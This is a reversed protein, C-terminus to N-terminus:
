KVDKRTGPQLPEGQAFQAAAATILGDDAMRALVWNRRIKARDRNESADLRYANPAKPLAALYAAEAVSLDALDKGFYQEAAAGIGWAAGGLYIQNLYIELIRDKSLAGEIRHALIVEKVKRGLSPSQGALFVNKALQQTITAAGEPSKADGGAGSVAVRQLGHAAARLIASLSYGPHGYYNEDEAALFAKVVHPPIESLPAYKRYELLQGDAGHRAVNPPTYAALAEVSPLDRAYSWYVGGVSLGLFVAVVAAAMGGRAMGRKGDKSVAYPASLLELPLSWERSLRAAMEGSLRRRRNLVESARSRSGLVGALDAQSRGQAQMAFTLLEVPDPPPLSRLKREYDAVLVALVELRDAEATGSEAQFLRDIEELAARHDAASRIPKMPDAASM